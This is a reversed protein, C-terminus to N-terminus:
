TTTVSFVSTAFRKSLLVLGPWISRAPKARVSLWLSSPLRVRVSTNAAHEPRIQESSRTKGAVVITVIAGGRRSNEPDRERAPMCAAARANM